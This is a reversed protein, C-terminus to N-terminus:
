LITEADDDDSDCEVLRTKRVRGASGEGTTVYRLDSGDFSRSALVGSLFHEYSGLYKASFTFIFKTSEGLCGEITDHAANGHGVAVFCGGRANSSTSSRM